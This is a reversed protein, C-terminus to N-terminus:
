SQNQLRVVAIHEINLFIYSGCLRRVLWKRAAHVSVALNPNQANFARQLETPSAPMGRALLAAAVRKAFQARELHEPQKAQPKM